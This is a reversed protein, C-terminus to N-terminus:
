PADVQPSRRPRTRELCVHRGEAGSDTCAATASRVDARLRAGGAPDAASEHTAVQTLLLALAAVALYKLVLANNV